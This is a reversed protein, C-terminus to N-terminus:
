REISPSSREQDNCDVLTLNEETKNTEANSGLSRHFRPKMHTSPSWIKYPLLVNYGLNSITNGCLDLIM